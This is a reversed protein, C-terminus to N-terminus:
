SARTGVADVAARFAAAAAEVDPADFLASSVALADAGAALVEAANDPTIGGIAVLPVTLQARARALVSLPAHVAEPKTRSVFVSGFAVHDAGARV